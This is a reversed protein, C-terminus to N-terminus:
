RTLLLRGVVAILEEVTNPKLIIEWIGVAEMKQAQRLQGELQQRETVDGAYCDRRAPSSSDPPRRLSTM